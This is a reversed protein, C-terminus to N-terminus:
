TVTPICKHWDPDLHGWNLMASTSVLWALTGRTTQLHCCCQSLCCPEARWADTRVSPPSQIESVPCRARNGDIQLVKTSSTVELCGESQGTLWYDCTKLRVEQANTRKRNCNLFSSGPIQGKMMVGTHQSFSFSVEAM